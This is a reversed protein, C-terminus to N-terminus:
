APGPESLVRVLMAFVTITDAGALRAALYKYAEGFTKDTRAKDTLSQWLSGKRGIALTMLQEESCGILPGRLITALTLDDEPLLIFQLLAVLDMVPLQETLVMRDAGTVPVGLGKLQRVLHEVFPGRKRVLVMVDSYRLPRHAGAARDYIMVGEGCWRKISAAIKEALEAAPDRVSEYDLPLAWEANEKKPAPVLPWVEVRGTAERHFAKHEVKVRSVGERVAENKFVTDVAKLVAPASRFSVNMEVDEYRRDADLIRKRFHKRMHEFEGPDAGQFSFISQKEDGVVFLTRNQGAHAGLGAFFEDALATIIQWQAPSTDQAEDVLIHDVGGDLKFLVWPAIGPRHLLADTRRILDNYDLAALAAKRAAFRRGLAVALTLVAETEEAIRVTDIRELVNLLRSAERGLVVGIEPLADLLKKDATKEYPEGKATLFARSYTELAEAREDRPKALWDLIIGAREKYSSTSRDQLLRATQLVEKHAFASNQAAERRLSVETEKPDLELLSRMHAVLKKLGGARAIAAELRPADKAAEKLLGTFREEGLERALIRLAKGEPSEPASSATRLVDSEADHWLARADAEDLVTFHPPLGSEVPFRRLIEQGFAHITHIRMGGPCGLVRAFLQRAAVLQEPEPVAPSQMEDLAKRLEDEGCTAWHALQRTIRIAMEAAAARTFTLCLVRQPPVGALLLRIVRDALVKTKGSGASAGVWVSAAPDSARRQAPAPQLPLIVGDIKEFAAGTM